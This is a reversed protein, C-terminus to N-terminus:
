KTIDTTLTLLGLVLFSSPSIDSYTGKKNQFCQLPYLSLGHYDDGIMDDYVTKTIQKGFLIPSIPQM